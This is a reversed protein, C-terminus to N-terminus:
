SSEVFKKVVYKIYDAFCASCCGRLLNVPGGDLDHVCKDPPEVLSSVVSTSHHIECSALITHTVKRAIKKFASRELPIERPLKQLSHKVLSQVQKKAGDVHRFNRRKIPQQVLNSDSHPFDRSNGQEHENSLVNNPESYLQRARNNSLLIRIRQHIARRGSLTSAGTGPVQSASVSSDEMSNRPPANLDFVQSSSQGQLSVSRQFISNNQTNSRNEEEVGFNSERTDLVQSRLSREGALKCGDCYWNGEPVENRLGVCYTHASSDCIDCLLMLSDDGGLHCEMCIVDEYPDLLVRVEEESPQYVQDRMQVRIVHRRMELMPGSRLYKTITVFRRKCLPCRSEVKSWEMICAFCFYHSCCNLIGQITGNHEESLCIGCLQKGLDDDEVEKGEKDEESIEFDSDSTESDKKSIKRRRGSNIEKKNRSRNRVARFVDPRDDDTTLFDSDFSNGNISSRNKKTSRSKGTRKSVKKPNKRHIKMAPRGNDEDDSSATTRRRKRKGPSVVVKRSRRNVKPKSVKRKLKTGGRKAAGRKASVSIDSSFLSDDEFDEEENADSSFEEDDVYDDDEWENDSFRSRPRGSSYRTRSNVKATRRKEPSSASNATNNADSADLSVEDPTGSEYSDDEEAVYEDDDEDDVGYNKKM